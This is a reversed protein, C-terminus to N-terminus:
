ELIGGLIDTVTIIGVLKNNNNIVPLANFKREQILKAASEISTNEKVTYLNTSMTSEIKIGYGKEIVMRLDRETIIGLLNGNDTVPLQKVDHKKLLYFGFQVDEEPSITVPKKTMCNKVLM